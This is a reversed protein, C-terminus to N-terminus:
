AKVEVFATSVATNANSPMLKAIKNTKVPLM